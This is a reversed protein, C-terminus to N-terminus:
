LDWISYDYTKLISASIREFEEVEAGTLERKYKGVESVTPREITKAKWQLFEVPEQHEQQNRLYYLGMEPDYPEELFQCIKQLERSPQSVLDEYRVEFTQEGPLKEFSRRIKQINQSWELAIESISAPLDPAYKSISKSKGLVKYSCAIDRGDRVIHVFQALPYMAHLTDIDGWRHFSRGLSQGYFEYVASVAQPYTVANSKIIYETLKAYDLNWTEIKRATSIDRVFEDVVTKSFVDSRYKEYFWVAFGCEPPIIINKHNALMLRLLTTGSRPNGIIFVPPRIESV